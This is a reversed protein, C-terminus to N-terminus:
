LEGYLYLHSAALYEGPTVSVTWEEEDDSTPIPDDLEIEEEDFTIFGEDHAVNLMMQIAILLSTAGKRAMCTMSTGGATWGDRSAEPPPLHFIGHALLHRLQVGIQLPLLLKGHSVNFSEELKKHRNLRPENRCHDYLHDM